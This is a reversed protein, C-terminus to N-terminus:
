PVSEKYNFDDDCHGNIRTVDCKIEDERLVSPSKQGRIPRRLRLSVGVLPRPLM